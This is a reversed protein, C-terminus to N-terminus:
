SLLEVSVLILPLLVLLKRAQLTVSLVTNYVCVKLFKGSLETPDSNLFVAESNM